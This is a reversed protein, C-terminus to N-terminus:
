SARLFADHESAARIHPIGWRDRCIDVPQHLSPLHLTSRVDPLAAQLDARTIRGSM